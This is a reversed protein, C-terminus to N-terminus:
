TMRRHEKVVCPVATFEAVQRLRKITQCPSRRVEESIGPARPLSIGNQFGCGQSPQGAEPTLSQEPRLGSGPSSEPSRQVQQNMELQHKLVSGLRERRASAGHCGRKRKTLRKPHTGPSAARFPLAPTWAPPLTWGGAPNVSCSHHGLSEPFSM